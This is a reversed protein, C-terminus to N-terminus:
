VRAWQWPVRKRHHRMAARLRMGNRGPHARLVFLWSTMNGLM